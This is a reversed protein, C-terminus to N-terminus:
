KVEEYDVYEGEGKDILKKKNNKKKSNFNNHPENSEPPNMKNFFRKVWFQLTYRAILGLIFLAIFFYFLFKFLSLM